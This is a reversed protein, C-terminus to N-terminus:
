VIVAREPMPRPTHSRPKRKEIGGVSRALSTITPSLLRDSFTKFSSSKSRPRKPSARGKHCKNLKHSMNPHYDVTTEYKCGCLKPTKNEYDDDIDQVVHCNEDKRPWNEECITSEEKSCFVIDKDEKSCFQFQNTYTYFKCHFLSWSVLKELIWRM